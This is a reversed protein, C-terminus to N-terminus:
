RSSPKKLVRPPKWIIQLHGNERIEIRCDPVRPAFLKKVAEDPSKAEILVPSARSGNANIIRCEFRRMVTGLAIVM